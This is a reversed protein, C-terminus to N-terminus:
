IDSSMRRELGASIFRILWPFGRICLTHFVLFLVLLQLVKWDSPRDWLKWSFLVFFCVFGGNFGGFGWVSRTDSVTKLRAIRCNFM